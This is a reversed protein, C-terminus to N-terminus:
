KEGKSKKYERSLLGYRFIDWYKGDSYKAERLVGEKVFGLKELLKISGVNFELVEAELRYFNMKNFAYDMISKLANTGFGKGYFEKKLIIGIEAKRNYWKINKLSIEGLLQDDKEIRFIMEKPMPSPYLRVESMPFLESADDILNILEEDGPNTQRLILDGSKLYM